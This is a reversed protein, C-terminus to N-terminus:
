KKHIVLSELLPAAEQEIASLSSYGQLVSENYDVLIIAGSVSGDVCALGRMKTDYVPNLAGSTRHNEYSASYQLCDSNSVRTPVARLSIKKHSGKKRLREEIGRIESALLDQSTHPVARYRKSTLIATTFIKVPEDPKEIAPVSKTFIAWIFVAVEENKAAFGMGQEHVLQRWNGGSPSEISFAPFELSQAHVAPIVLVAIFLALLKM